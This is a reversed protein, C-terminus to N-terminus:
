YEYGKIPEYSPRDIGKRVAVASYDGCWHRAIDVLPWIPRLAHSGAYEVPGPLPAHRRCQGENYHQTKSMYSCTECTIM